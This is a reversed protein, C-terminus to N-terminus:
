QITGQASGPTDLVALKLKDLMGAMAASGHLATLRDVAEIMMAWAVIRQPLGGGADEDWLTRVLDPADGLGYPVDPSNLAETM